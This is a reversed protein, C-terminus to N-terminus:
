CRRKGPKRPIKQANHVQKRGKHSSFNQRRLARRTLRAQKGGVVTTGRVWSEKVIPIQLHNAVEQRQRNRIMVLEQREQRLREIETNDVDARVDSTPSPHEYVSMTPHEILLDELPHAAAAPANGGTFTLSPTVVWSGDSCQSDVDWDQSNSNGSGSDASHTVLLWGEEKEHTTHEIKTDEQANSPAEGWILSSLFSPLM